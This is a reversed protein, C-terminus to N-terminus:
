KLTRPKPGKSPTHKDQVKANYEKRNESDSAVSKFTSPYKNDQINGVRDKDHQNPVDSSAKLEDHSGDTYKSQVDKPSPTNSPAKSPPADKLQINPNVKADISQVEDSSLGSKQAFDYQAACNFMDGAKTFATTASTLRYYGNYKQKEKDTFYFVFEKNPTMAFLDQDVLLCSLHLNRENIESLMVSKNFENGFKDSVISSSGMGRQQGAGSVETTENNRPDVITVNNGAVLDQTTYPTSVSINEPDIYMVYEQEDPSEFTGTAKLNSNTQDFVTLITKKFEGQEYCDCAGSKNLIYLCRFDYFSMTGFYYTGYTQQLYEFVNMLNMPPVIVQPYQKQNNLPSILMKDIGANSLIHGLASSLTCDNYIENVTKRMAILDKERWLSLEYAETYDSPNYWHKDEAKIASSTQQGGASKNTQDYLKSEQFPAEDDILVIFTDNIIDHYPQTGQEGNIDVAVMRFRINVENKNNVIAEHLRPPLLTKIELIPHIAEDYLQTLFIHQIATPIMDIPDQGPLLVQWTEVRYRYRHNRMNTRFQNSTGSQGGMNFAKDLLGDLNLKPINPRKVSSFINKLLSGTDIKIGM